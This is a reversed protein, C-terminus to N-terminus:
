QNNWETVDDSAYAVEIAYHSSPADINSAEAQEGAVILGVALLLTSVTTLGATRTATSTAVETETTERFILIAPLIFAYHRLLSIVAPAIGVELGAIGMGLLPFLLLWVNMATQVTIFSVGRFWNPGFLSPRLAAYLIAIVAGNTYHGLVGGLLGVGLKEGLLAPIDWWNGTFFFGSIDFLLTGAVGAGIAKYWNIKM